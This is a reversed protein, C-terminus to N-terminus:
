KSIYCDCLDEEKLTSFQSEKETKTTNTAPNDHWELTFLREIKDLDLEGM